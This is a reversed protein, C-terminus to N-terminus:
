TLYENTKVLSLSVASPSCFFAVNNASVGLDLNQPVELTDTSRTFQQQGSPDYLFGSLVMPAVVVLNPDVGYVARAIEAVSLYGRRMPAKNIESAIAAKIEEEDPATRSDAYKIMAEVGVFLPIPAKVLYDGAHNRIGYGSLYDQLVSIAPLLLVTIQFTTTEGVATGPVESFDFTIEVTQFKSYRAQTGDSIDPTYTEGSIDSTFTYQLDGTYTMEGDVSDHAIKTVLYFGPAETKPILIKWTSSTIDILTGTLALELSTPYDATRAYVDVRGGPNVGYVNNRGRLMEADGMGIVSVDQVNVSALDSFLAEVHAKGSPVKASIGSAARNKMDDLTEEPSGGTFTAAIEVHTVGPVTQGMTVTQGVAIVNSTPAATSAPITMYWTTDDYPRLMRYRVGDLMEDETAVGIYAQDLVLTDTGVSFSTTAPIYLNNNVNTFVALFGSAVTGQKRTVNFNSLMAEVVAPDTGQTISLNSIVTSVTEQQATYYRAAPTIVLERIATGITTDLHGDYSNLWSALLEENAFVAENDLNSLDM